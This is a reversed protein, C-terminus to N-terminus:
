EYNEISCPTIYYTIMELQIICDDQFQSIYILTRMQGGYAGCEPSIMLALCELCQHLIYCMDYYSIFNSDLLSLCTHFFAYLEFM